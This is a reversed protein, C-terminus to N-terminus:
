KKLHRYKLVDPFISVKCGVDLRGAELQKPNTGHESCLNFRQWVLFRKNFSPRNCPLFDLGVRVFNFILITSVAQREDHNSCQDQLYLWFGFEWGDRGSLLVPPPSQLPNTSAHSWVRKNDDQASDGLGVNVKPLVLHWLLFPLGCVRCSMLWM